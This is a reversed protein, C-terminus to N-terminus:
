EFRLLEQYYAPAISNRDLDDSSWNWYSPAQCSKLYTQFETDSYFNNLVDLADQAETASEVTSPLTFYEANEQSYVFHLRNLREQSFETSATVQCENVLEPREKAGCGIIFLALIICGLHKM